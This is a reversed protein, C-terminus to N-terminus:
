GAEASISHAGYWSWWAAVLGVAFALALTVGAPALSIGLFVLFRARYLQTTRDLIEGLTQPRLPESM